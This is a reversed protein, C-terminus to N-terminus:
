YTKLLNTDMEKMDIVYRSSSYATHEIFLFEHLSKMDVLKPKTDKMYNKLSRIERKIRLDLITAELGDSVEEYRININNDLLSLLSFAKIYPLNLIDNFIEKTRSMHWKNTIVIVNKIGM